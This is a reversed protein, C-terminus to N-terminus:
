AEGSEALTDPIEVKEAQQERKRRKAPILGNPRYIMMMVLIIGFLMKQYKAPDIQASLDKLAFNIIPIVTGSQRLSSLSLSIGQLVQINLVVVVTAGLIVGPISGLGGLIVMSLVGISQMFNFTEPSIFTRSAAFVVGMIGAFSAGVSFAALKYLVVRVGMSSAALEDDKIAAWARGVKSDDLRTVVYIVVIIIIVSLLYFFLNYFDGLSTPKGVLPTM